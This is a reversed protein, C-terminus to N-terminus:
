EVEHVTHLSDKSWNLPNQAIYDIISNLDEENRIIHEYYNRQWVNGAFGSRKLQSSVAAKYGALMKGLESSKPRVCDTAEDDSHLFVIGHFHNPMVVFEHLVVDQRIEGCKIWEDAVLKGYENLAMEGDAVKGFICKKEFSCITVFYAGQSSYDYGKLRISHRHHEKPDFNV